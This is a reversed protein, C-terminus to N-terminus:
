LMELPRARRPPPFAEDLLALDESSLVIDRSKANEEVHAPTGARPIACVHQHHLLWALAIQTPSAGHGRAVEGLAPHTLLRGQEIPSYAMVPIDREALWPILDFEPGRRSLNYLIQDTQVGDGGPVGTLETMDDVDLNSVGWRRILGESVLKSLGDVTEALPVSGRWHLLYLDIYDTRLRDLSARCARGTGTRTAHEPLVKDVIFVEDRRGAIAEGVLVESAGNGYMEATDVLTMGLDLGLRIAAIEDSRRAPREGFYWTGQGLTPITEGSPLAVSPTTGSM